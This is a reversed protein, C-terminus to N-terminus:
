WNWSMWCHAIFKTRFSWEFITGYTLKYVRGTMHESKLEVRTNSCQSGNLNQTKIEWLPSPRRVPIYCIVIALMTEHITGDTCQSIARLRISHQVERWFKVSAWRMWGALRAVLQDLDVAWGKHANYALAFFPFGFGETLSLSALFSKLPLATSVKTPSRSAISLSCKLSRDLWWHCSFYYLSAVIQCQGTCIKYNHFLHCIQNQISSSIRCHPLSISTCAKM